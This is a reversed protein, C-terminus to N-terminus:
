KTKNEHAEVRLPIEGKEDQKCKRENKNCKMLNNHKTKHNTNAVAKDQSITPSWHEQIAQVRLSPKAVPVLIKCKMKLNMPKDTQKYM